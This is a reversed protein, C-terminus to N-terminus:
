QQPEKLYDWEGRKKPPGAILARLINEPPDPIQEPM